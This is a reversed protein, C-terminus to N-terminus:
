IVQFARLCKVPVKLGNLQSGGCVTAHLSKKQIVKLQWWPAIIAAVVAVGVVSNIHVLLKHCLKLASVMAMTLAMM